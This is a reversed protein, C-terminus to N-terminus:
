PAPAGIRAQLVRELTDVVVRTRHEVEFNLRDGTRYAGFTTQRITEPILNVTARGTEQDIGAVTLSVGNLALFGKDFVYKAHEAPLSFRISAVPGTTDIERIIAVGTVHGTVEHGGNEEGLKLSREVNLQEGPRRDGINTVELTGQVADFSVLAGAIATVTMCVGDLAVSMGLKLGDTLYPPFRLQLSVRGPAEERGVLEATAQVIGTFV